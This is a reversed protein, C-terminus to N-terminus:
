IKRRRVQPVARRFFGRSRMLDQLRSHAEAETLNTGDGLTVAPVQPAVSSPVRTASPSSVEALAERAVLVEAARIVEHPEGVVPAPGLAEGLPPEIGPQPGSWPSSAAPYDITPGAGIVTPRGERGRGELQEAIRAQDFFTSPERQSERLLKANHLALLKEAHSASNSFPKDIM